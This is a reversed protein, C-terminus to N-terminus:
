PQCSTELTVDEAEPGGIRKVNLQLALTSRNLRADAVTVGGEKAPAAGHFSLTDGSLGKLTMPVPEGPRQWAYTITTPGELGGDVKLKVDVPAKTQKPLVLAEGKCMLVTEGAQAAGSALLAAAACAFALSLRM